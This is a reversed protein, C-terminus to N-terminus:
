KNPEAERQESMEIDAGPTTALIALRKEFAEMGSGMAHACIQMHACVHGTPDIQVIMLIHCEIEFYLM